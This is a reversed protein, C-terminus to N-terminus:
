LMEVGSSKWRSACDAEHVTLRALARRRWTAALDRDIEVVHLEAGSAILGETLAGRGPGIEVLRESSRPDVARLIADIVRGDTLFNQGFRKRPAQSFAEM